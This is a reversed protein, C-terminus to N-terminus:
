THACRAGRIRSSAVLAYSGKAHGAARGPPVNLRDSSSRSLFSGGVGHRGRDLPGTFSSHRRSKVPAIGGSSEADGGRVLACCPQDVQLEVGSRPRGVVGRGSRKPNTGGIGSPLGVVGTAPARKFHLTRRGEMTVTPGAVESSQTM